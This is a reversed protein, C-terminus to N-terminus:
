IQIRRWAGSQFRWILYVALFFMHILSGTWAGNLGGELRFALLWVLPLMLGFSLVFRALFPVRTDGAGHLAGDAIIGLADFFQLLAGIMLLSAGM